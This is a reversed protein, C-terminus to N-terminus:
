GITKFAPVTLFGNKKDQNGIKVTKLPKIPDFQHRTRLQIPQDTWNKFGHILWGFSYFICYVYSETINRSMGMLHM